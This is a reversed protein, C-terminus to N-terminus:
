VTFREEWFVLRDADYSSGKTESDRFCNALVGEFENEDLKRLISERRRAAKEGETFLGQWVSLPGEDIRKIVVMLAVM